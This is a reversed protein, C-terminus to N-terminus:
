LPPLNYYGALDPMPIRVMRHFELIDSTELLTSHLNELLNKLIITKLIKLISNQPSFAIPSLPWTRGGFTLKAASLAWHEAGSLELEAGSHQMTECAIPCGFSLQSTLQTM